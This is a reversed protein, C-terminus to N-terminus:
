AHRWCAKPSAGPVGASYRSWLLQDPRTRVCVPWWVAAGWRGSAKHEVRRKESKCLAMWPVSGFAARGLFRRRWGERPERRHGVNFLCLEWCCGGGRGGRRAM